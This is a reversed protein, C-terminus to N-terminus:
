TLTGTIQYLKSKAGNSNRVFFLQLTVVQGVQLTGYKTTYAATVDYPAAGGATFQQLFAFRRGIFTRGAHQPPAGLVVPYDTAPAANTGSVTLATHLPAISIGGPDGVNQDIPPLSLAALGVTALARNVRQYFQLATLVQTNGFKDKVPNASALSAWGLRNAPSLSNSYLKSLQAFNGRVTHQASTRPQVPSSKKRIYSGFRSKSFVNGALKRRADAVIAGFLIKAM